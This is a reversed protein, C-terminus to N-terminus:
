LPIGGLCDDGSARRYEVDPAGRRNGDARAVHPLGDTASVLTYGDREVAGMLDTWSRGLVSSETELTGLYALPGYRRQAEVCPVMIAPTIVFEGRHERRQYLSLEM